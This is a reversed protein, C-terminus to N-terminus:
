CPRTKNAPGNRAAKPPPPGCPMRRAPFDQREISAAVAKETEARLKAIPDEGPGSRSTTSSKGFGGLLYFGAAGAGGILVAAALAVAVKSGGGTPRSMSDGRQWPRPTGEPDTDVDAASPLQTTTEMLGVPPGGPPFVDITPCTFSAARSRKRPRDPPQPPWGAPPPTSSKLDEFRITERINSSSDSMGPLNPFKSTPEMVPGVAVAAPALASSRRRFRTRRRCRRPRFSRGRFAPRRDGARGCVGPVVRVADEPEVACARRLVAQEARPWRGYFDLSGSAHAQMM